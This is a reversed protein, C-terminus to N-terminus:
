NLPLYFLSLRPIGFREVVKKNLMKRELLAMHEAKLGRGHRALERNAEQRLGFLTEDDLTAILGALVKDELTSLRLELNEYDPQLVESLDQRMDSVAQAAKKLTEKAMVDGASEAARNMQQCANHLMELLVQRESDAREALESQAPSRGAANEKFLDFEDLIAQTCYTLSNIQRSARKRRAHKEFAQDVGRLVVELPIGSEQFSEILAWDLPSVPIAKGRRKQFHEEIETFYNFYNDM